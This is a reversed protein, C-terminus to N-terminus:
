KRRKSKNGTELVNIYANYEHIRQLLDNAFGRMRPMRSKEFEALQQDALTAITKADKKLRQLADSAAAQTDQIGKM